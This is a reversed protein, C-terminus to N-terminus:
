TLNFYISIWMKVNTKGDRWKLNFQLSEVWIMFWNSITYFLTTLWFYFTVYIYIHHWFKIKSFTIHNNRGKKISILHLSMERFLVVAIKIGNQWDQYILNSEDQCKFYICIDDPPLAETTFRCSSGELTQREASQNKKIKIKININTSEKLLCITLHIPLYHWSLKKNEQALNILM